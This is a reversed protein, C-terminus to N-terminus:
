TAKIREIAAEQESIKLIKSSLTALALAHAGKLEQHRIAKKLDEPLSLMPLLNSKVSAPNLGFQPLYLTASM